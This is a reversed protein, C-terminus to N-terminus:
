LCFPAVGTISSQCLQLLSIPRSRETFLMKYQLAYFASQQYLFLLLLFCRRAPAGQKGFLLFASLADGREAFGVSDFGFQKEMELCQTIHSGFQLLYSRQFGNSFRAVCLGTIAM